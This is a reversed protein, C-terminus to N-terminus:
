QQKLDAKGYSPLSSGWMKQAADKLRSFLTAAKEHIVVFTDLKKAGSDSDGKQDISELLENIQAQLGYNRDSIIRQLLARAVQLPFTETFSAYYEHNNSRGTATNLADQLHPPLTPSFVHAILKFEDTCVECVRHFLNSLKSRTADIDFEEKQEEETTTDDLSSSKTPTAFMKKEDFLEPFKTSIVLGVYTKHLSRGSDFNMLAEAFDRLSLWDLRGPRSAAKISTFDYTGEANYIETFSALLRQELAASTRQILRDTLDFRKSSKPDVNMGTGGFESGINNSSSLVSAAGNGNGGGGGSGNSSTSRCRVVMRLSKLTMAAELSNEPRTFLPDMRCSSSPINGKVEDSVRIEEKSLEEQEALNEMMWWRRILMSANDSQRRKAEAMELASGIKLAERGHLLFQNQITESKRLTGQAALGHAMLHIAYAEYNLGTNESADSLLSSTKDLHTSCKQTAKDLLLTNTEDNDTTICTHTLHQLLQHLTLTPKNNNNTKNHHNSTNNNNSSTPTISQGTKSRGIGTVNNNGAGSTVTQAATVGVNGNNTAAGAGIGVRGTTSSADVSYDPPCYIYWELAKEWAELRAKQVESATLGADGGVHINQSLSKLIDMSKAQLANRNQEMVELRMAREQIFGDGSRTYTDLMHPNKNLVAKIRSLHLNVDQEAATLIDTITTDKKETTATATLANSSGGTGLKSPSSKEMMSSEGGGSSNAVPSTASLFPDYKEEKESQAIMVSRLHDLKPEASLPDYLYEEPIRQSLLSSTAENMTARMIAAEDDPFASSSSSTTSLFSSSLKKKNNYM